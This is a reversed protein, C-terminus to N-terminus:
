RLAVRVGPSDEFDGKKSSVCCNSSVNMGREGGPKKGELPVIIALYSGTSATAVPSHERPLYTVVSAWIGKNIEDERGM